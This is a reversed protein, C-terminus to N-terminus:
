VFRSIVDSSAKHLISCLFDRAVATLIALGARRAGQHGKPEESVATDFTTQRALYSLVFPIRSYSDFVQFRRSRYSLVRLAFDCSEASCVLAHIHWESSALLQRKCSVPIWCRAYKSLVDLGQEPVLMVLFSICEDWNQFLSAKSEAHM